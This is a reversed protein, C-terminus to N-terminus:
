ASPHFLTCSIFVQAARSPHDSDFAVLQGEHYEPEVEGTPYRVQQKFYSIPFFKVFSSFPVQFKGIPKDTEIHDLLLESQSQMFYFTFTEMWTPHKQNYRVCTSFTQDTRQSGLFLSVQVYSNVYRPQSADLAHGAQLTLRCSENMSIRSLRLVLPTSYAGQLPFNRGGHVTVRLTTQKDLDVQEPTTEISM